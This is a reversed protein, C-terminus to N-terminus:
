LLIHILLYADGLEVSVGQTHVTHVPTQETAGAGCESGM